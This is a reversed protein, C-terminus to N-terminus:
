QSVSPVPVTRDGVNLKMTPGSWDVECRYGPKHEIHSTFEHQSAYSRYDNCYKTYKVPVGGEARVRASYELWLLRLTVGVRKLESHTRSYDPLTYLNETMRKFKDPFILEYVDDESMAKVSQYTIGRKEAISFIENVNKRSIHRSTAIETRNLGQDRLQLVLKVKLKPTM